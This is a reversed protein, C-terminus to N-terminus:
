GYICKVYDGSARVRREILPALRSMNRTPRSAMRLAPNPLSVALLTAQRLTLKAAPVNFHHQAAAEAGYIGPGWEAVNLYIEMTRRKSWLVDSFLALPLELAKRVFSRGNWLFLNKATQMPITSAGRTAEGDLASSVVSRMQTWDVGSHTCYQGDESMMVARVLNPSMDKLAVWQRDYGRLMALDALMLTSVPRVFPVAYVLILMYPALVFLGFVTMALRLRGKPWLAPRRRVPRAEDIKLEGNGDVGGDLWAAGSPVCLGCPRGLGTGCAAKGNCAMGSWTLCRTHAVFLSEILAQAVAGRADSLKKLADERVGGLRVFDGAGGPKEGGHAMSCQVASLAQPGKEHHFTSGDEAATRQGCGADACGEFTQMAIGEDVIIQGGHIVVVHSAALRGHVDGIVLCSGNQGAIRKLGNGEVDDGRGLCREGVALLHRQHQGKGTGGTRAAHDATLREIQGGLPLLRLLLVDDGKLRHLGAGEHAKGTLSARDEGGSRGLVPRAHAAEPFDDAAGELDGIIKQIEGGIGLGHALCGALVGGAALARQDGQLPLGPRFGLQGAEYLLCGGKKGGIALAGGNENFCGGEDGVPFVLTLLNQDGSTAM